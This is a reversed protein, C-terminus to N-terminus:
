SEYQQCLAGLHAEPDSRLHGHRRTYVDMLLPLFQALDTGEKSLYRQPLLVVCLSQHSSCTSTNTPHM